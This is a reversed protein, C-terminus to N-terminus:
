AKQRRHRVAGAVALIAILASLLLVLPIWGNSGDDESSPELRPADDAVPVSAVIITHDSAVNYFVYYGIAIDEASLPVGDVSVREIRHGAMPSFDFRGIGGDAVVVGGSPTINSGADSSAQIIRDAPRPAAKGVVDITHDASVATFTYSGSSIQSSTLAYEGPQGRDVVVCDVAYGFGAKFTFTRGGGDAVVV